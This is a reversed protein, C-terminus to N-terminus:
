EAKKLVQWDGFARVTEYRQKAEPTMLDADKEFTSCILWDYEGSNMKAMVRRLAAPNRSAIFGALLRDDFEHRGALETIVNNSPSYMTGPQEKLFAVLEIFDRDFKGLAKSVHYPMRADWQFVLLILALWAARGGHPGTRALIREVGFGSLFVAGYFVPMMSNSGSEPSASVFLSGAMLFPLALVSLRYAPEKWLDGMLALALAACALTLPMATCSFFWKMLNSLPFLREAQMAARGFVYFGMWEGAVANLVAYLAAFSVALSLLFPPLQKRRGFLLFLVAGPIAFVATQKAFFGLALLLGSILAPMPGPLLLLALGSVWLLHCLPDPKFGAATWMSNWTVSAFLAALAGAALRGGSRRGFPLVMLFGTLATLVIGILRGPLFSRADTVRFWLSLLMPYLPTYIDGAAHRAPDAYIKNGLAFDAAQCLNKGEWVDLQAPLFARALLLAVAYVIFAGCLAALLLRPFAAGGCFSKWTTKM